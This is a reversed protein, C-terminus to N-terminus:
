CNLRNNPEGSECTGEWLPQSLSSSTLGESPVKKSTASRRAPKEAGFRVPELAVASDPTSRESGLRIPESLLIDCDTARVGMSSRSPPPNSGVAGGDLTCTSEGGSRM